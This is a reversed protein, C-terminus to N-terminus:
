DKCIEYVLDGLPTGPPLIVFESKDTIIRIPNGEGM